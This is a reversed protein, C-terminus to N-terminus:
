TKVEKVNGIFGSPPGFCLQFHFGEPDNPMPYPFSDAVELVQLIERQIGSFKETINYCIRCLLNLLKKGIKLYNAIESFPTPHAETSKYIKFLRFSCIKYETKAQLVNKRRFFFGEARKRLVDPDSKDTGVRKKLPVSSFFICFNYLFYLNKRIKLWM